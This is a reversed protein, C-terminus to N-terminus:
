SFILVLRWAVAISQARLLLARYTTFHGPSWNSSPMRRHLRVQAYWRRCSRRRRDSFSRHLLTSPRMACRGPHHGSANWRLHLSILPIFHINISLTRRSRIRIKVFRQCRSWPDGFESDIIAKPFADVM